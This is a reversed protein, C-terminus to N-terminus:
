FYKKNMQPNETKKKTYTSVSHITQHIFTPTRRKKNTQITICKLQLLCFYFILHRATVSKM